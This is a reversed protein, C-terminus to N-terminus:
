KVTKDLAILLTSKKHIHPQRVLLPNNQNSHILDEGKPPPPVAQPPHPSPQAGRGLQQAQLQNLHFFAMSKEKVTRHERM